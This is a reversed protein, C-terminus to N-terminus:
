KEDGSSVRTKLMTFFYFYLAGKRIIIVHHNKVNEEKGIILFLTEFIM